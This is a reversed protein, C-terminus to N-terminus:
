FLSPLDKELTMEHFWQGVVIQSYRFQLTCPLGKDLTALEGVPLLFSRSQLPWRRSLPRRSLLLFFRRNQLGFRRSEGVKMCLITLNALFINLNWLKRWIKGFNEDGAPGHASSRPRPGGASKSTRKACERAVSWTAPWKHVTVFFNYNQVVM